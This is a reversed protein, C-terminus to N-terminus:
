RPPPLHNALPLIRQLDPPAFLEVLTMREPATFEDAERRAVLPISGIMGGSATPLSRAVGFESPCSVLYNTTSGHVLLDSFHICSRVPLHRVERAMVLPALPASIAESRAGKPLSKIVPKKRLRSRLCYYAVSVLCDPMRRMAARPAYRCPQVQGFASQRSQPAWAAFGTMRESRWRDVAPAGPRRAIRQDPFARDTCEVLDVRLEVDRQKAIDQVLGAVAIGRDVAKGVWAERLLSCTTCAIVRIAIVRPAGRVIRTSLPGSNM